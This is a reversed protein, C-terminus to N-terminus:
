PMDNRYAPCTWLMLMWTLKLDHANRSNLTVMWILSMLILFMLDIDTICKGHQYHILLRPNDMWKAYKYFIDIMIQLARKVNMACRHFNTKGFNHSITFPAEHLEWMLQISGTRYRIWSRLLRVADFMVDIKLNGAQAAFHLPTNGENDAKNVDIGPLHLFLELFNTLNTSCIYSLATQSLFGVESIISLYKNALM